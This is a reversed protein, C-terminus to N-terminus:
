GFLGGQIELSQASVNYEEITRSVDQDHKRRKRDEDTLEEAGAGSASIESRKRKGMVEDALRAQREAPTETWLSSM